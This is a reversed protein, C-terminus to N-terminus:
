ALGDDLGQVAQLSECSHPHLHPEKTLRGWWWDGHPSEEEEQVAATCATEYEVPGMTASPCAQEGAQQHM